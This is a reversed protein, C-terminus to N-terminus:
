NDKAGDDVWEGILDVARVKLGTIPHTLEPGKRTLEHIDFPANPPMRNNRLRARLGSEGWNYSDGGTAEDEGLLPEEGGDAGALLGAETNFDILHFCPPESDDCGHCDTCAQGGLFFVNAQSFLGAIDAFSVAGAVGAYGTTAGDLSAVYAELLGVANYTGEYEVEGFGSTGEVSVSFRGGLAIDNGDAVATLIIDGGNRNTEDMNFPMGPPMRNNRLRKRLKAHSWDTTGDGVTGEGLLAESGDDAGALWGAHTNLDMMHCEPPCEEEGDGNVDGAHCTGCATAPGDTGDGNGYNFWAGYGDTESFLPLIDDKFSVGAVTVSVSDYFFVGAATDLAGDMDLDVAFFYTYTGTGLDSTSFVAYDNIPLLAYQILATPTSVFAKQAIDYYQLAGSPTLV